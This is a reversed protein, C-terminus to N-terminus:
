KSLKKLVYDKNKNIFGETYINELISKSGYYTPTEAHRKFHEAGDTQERYLATFIKGAQSKLEEPIDDRERLSQYVTDLLSVAELQLYYM